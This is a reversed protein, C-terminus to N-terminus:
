QRLRFTMSPRSPAILPSRHARPGFALAGREGDGEANQAQAYEERAQQALGLARERDGQTEWLAQALHFRIDAREAPRIRNHGSLTLARELPALAEQPRRLAVQSMGIGALSSVLEPHQPMGPRERIALARQFHGLAVDPQKAELHWSGLGEM